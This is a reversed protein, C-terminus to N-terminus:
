VGIYGTGHRTYPPKREAPPERGFKTKFTAFDITAIPRSTRPRTVTMDSCRCWAPAKPRIVDARLLQGRRDEGLFRRITENVEAPTSIPTVDQTVLPNPSYIATATEPTLSIAEVMRLPFRSYPYDGGTRSFHPVRRWDQLFVIWEDGSAEREDREHSHLHRDCVFQLTEAPKGKLTELVRFTVTYFVYDDDRKHKETKEILGHVIVQAKATQWEVSEADFALPQACASGTMALGLAVLCVSRTTAAAIKM